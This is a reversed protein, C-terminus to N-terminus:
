SGFKLGTITRVLTKAPSKLDASGSYLEATGLEVRILVLDVNPGCYTQWDVQGNAAPKPADYLFLCGGSAVDDGCQKYLFGCLGAAADGVEPTRMFRAAQPIISLGDPGGMGQVYVGPSYNGDRDVCVFIVRDFM